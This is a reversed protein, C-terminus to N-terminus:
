ICTSVIVVYISNNQLIDDAMFTCNGTLELPAICTRNPSVVQVCGWLFVKNALQHHSTNISLPTSVINTDLLSHMTKNGRSNQQNAFGPCYAAM